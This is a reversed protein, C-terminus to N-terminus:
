MQYHLGGDDNGACRREVWGVVRSFRADGNRDGAVRVAQEGAKEAQRVAGGAIDFGTSARRARKRSTNILRNKHHGWVELKM